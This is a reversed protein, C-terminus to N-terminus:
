PNLRWIALNLATAYGVWAAYPVLLWAAIRDLPWFLRITVLIALLLAVIVVLGLAPNRLGFFAWSWAANL